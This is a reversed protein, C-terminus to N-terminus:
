GGRNALLLFQLLVIQIGGGVGGMGKFYPPKDNLLNQLYSAFFLLPRGFVDHIVIRSIFVQNPKM